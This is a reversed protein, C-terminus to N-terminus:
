NKIEHDNLNLTAPGLDVDSTLTVTVQVWYPQLTVDCCLPQKTGPWQAGPGQRPLQYVKHEYVCPAIEIAGKNGSAENGIYCYVKKSANDFITFNYVNLRRKYYFVSLEGCRTQLVSQLDFECVRIQSNELAIEVDARKMERSIQKNKLPNTKRMVPM